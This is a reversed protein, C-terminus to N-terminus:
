SKIEALISQVVEARKELARLIKADVTNKAVLHIHEVPRTQGPRHVRSLAQDYEGLSFSLSYYISFRARTLDVGVGGASIQVALVPAQGDQWAKLEDRRGSLELSELGASKAAEHVADLDAHFRCFVVAPEDAGIDEFTDALLQRKACDVRHVAGDDTPVVGGTVQQLRLLKVMANAATVVGERVQAVFDEELDRYIRRADPSLECHYTVHTEAPLDLVEKGVRFTFRSLLSEFEELHQYGTIQKKQFGGMVCYKQRFAAFSPGFVTPDVFRAVAYVDTLGHPMPTGTMAVRVRAHPRLRKFFLSAKGSPCKLRHGEDAIVLDWSQKEAWEAFPDRWASDYNIVAVFPVGRTEALRMKEEALERKDAVSGADEDLAVVVVPASVHHEFQSLWVPIVRLPCAILTREAGIGITLMCAVLSKGTGMGMALLMGNRGAAIHERCFEYAAAQHRWPTTRLGAPLQVTPEPEPDPPKAVPAQPQPSLLAAFDGNSELRPISASILQAHRTTAPYVWARQAADWGSGPIRKCLVLQSFPAHLVIRGGIVEATSPAAEAV